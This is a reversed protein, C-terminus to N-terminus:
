EFVQGFMLPISLGLIVISFTIILIKKDLRPIMRLLTFLILLGLVTILVAAGAGIAVEIIPVLESENREFQSILDISSGLGNFFGFFIAFLFVYKEKSRILNKVSLVNFIALSFITFPILFRIIDIKPIITGYVVLIM